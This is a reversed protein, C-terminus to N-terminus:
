DSVSCSCCGACRAEPRRRSRGVGRSGSEGVGRAPGRPDGLIEASARYQTEPDSQAPDPWRSSSGRRSQGRHKEWNVLQLYPKGDVVYILVPGSGDGDANVLEDIWGSVQKARIERRRPYAHAAIIEPDGDYRGYDDVLAILNRFLLEAGLSVRSLSQSKLIEGRVVRTPM